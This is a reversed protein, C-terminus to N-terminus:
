KGTRELLWTESSTNIGLYPNLNYAEGSEVSTLKFNLNFLTSALEERNFAIEYVKAGYAYKSFLTTKENTLTISHLVIFKKSVRAYDEVSARWDLIHILAAGDLVIDVSNDKLPISASTGQILRNNIDLKRAYQLASLSSDLGLYNITKDIEFLLNKNYASGCGVEIITWDRLNIKKLSKALASIDKRNGYNSNKILKEWAKHQRSIMKSSWTKDFKVQSLSSPWDELKYGASSLFQRSLISFRQILLYKILDKCV